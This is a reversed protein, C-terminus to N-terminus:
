ELRRSMLHDNTAPWSPQGDVRGLRQEAADGLYPPIHGEPDVGFVELRGDANSAVDVMALTTADTYLEAWASHVIGEPAWM